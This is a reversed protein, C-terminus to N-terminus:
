LHKGRIWPHPNHVFPFLTRRLMLLANHLSVQEDRGHKVFDWLWEVDEKPVAPHQKM